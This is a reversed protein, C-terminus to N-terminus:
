NCKIVTGEIYLSVWTKKSSCSNCAQRLNYTGLANCNGQAAQRLEYTPAASTDGRCVQRSNYTTGTGCDGRCIQRQVYTKLSNCHSSHTTKSDRYRDRKIRENTKKVWGFLSGVGNVIMKTTARQAAATAQVEGDLREKLAQEEKTLPETTHRGKALKLHQVGIRQGRSSRWYRRGYGEAYGNKCGGTWTLSEGGKPDENYHICNKTDYIWNKGLPKKPSTRNYSVGKGATQDKIRKGKELTTHQVHNKKGKKYWVRKGDGEAYNNICKGSWTIKENPLPDPNYHLCNNQDYIWYKGLSKKPHSRNHSHNKRGNPLVHIHKKGSHNHAVKKNYYIKKTNHNGRHNHHGRGNNPLIHTHKKGNHNHAVKTNNHNHHGRGNNPLVHTHKKGDHAHTVPRQQKSYSVLPLLIAIILFIFVKKM